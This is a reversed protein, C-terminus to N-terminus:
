KRNGILMFGQEKPSTDWTDEMFTMCIESRCKISKDVEKEKRSDMVVCIGFQEPEVEEM